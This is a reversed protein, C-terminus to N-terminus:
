SQKFTFLPQIGLEFMSQIVVCINHALVKCLAENVQAVRSKALLRSGFKAKIMSFVTEVNSRKHYHNLYEEQHLSYYHFMRKFAGAGQGKANVKFAIFPTAGYSEVLDHNDVSSYGKDASVEHMNFSKATQNVLTEFQPSDAVYGGTIEVSTVIHTNVGCMLHVKVWDQKTMEKGYKEDFWRLHQSTSFGSSDVAFDNEIARLPMSSLRILAKLIPTLSEMELYNNLSNFHPVKVIFGKAQAEALDSIFRRSSVTSFIKYVLSFVMDSIPLPQRGRKHLPSTIGSCLDNLLDLFLHKEHTQAQNYATWEQEYTVRKTVKVSETVTTTTVDGDTTETVSRQRETVIEVAYIHKCPAHRLEFDLCTCTPWDPDVNNVKYYDNGSQSPVIWSDGKKVLKSKAAIVLAKQKRESM